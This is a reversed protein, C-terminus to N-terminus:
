GRDTDRWWDRIKVEGHFGGGLSAFCSLFFFRREKKCRVCSHIVPPNLPAVILATHLTHARSSCVREDRMERPPPLLVSTSRLSPLPPVCASCKCKNYQARLDVIWEIAVDSQYRAEQSRRIERLGEETNFLDPNMTEEKKVPIAIM